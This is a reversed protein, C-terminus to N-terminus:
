LSRSYWKKSIMYDTRGKHGFSPLNHCFFGIGLNRALRTQVHYEKRLDSTGYKPPKEYIEKQSEVVVSSWSVVIEYFYHYDDDPLPLPAVDATSSSM